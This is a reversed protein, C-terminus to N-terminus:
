DTQLNRLSEDVDAIIDGSSLRPVQIRTLRPYAGKTSIIISERNGRHKLWKGVM